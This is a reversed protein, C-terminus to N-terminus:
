GCCVLGSRRKRPPEGRIDGGLESDGRGSLGQIVAVVRVRALLVNALQSLADQIARGVEKREQLRLAADPRKLESARDPCGRRLVDGGVERVRELLARPSQPQIAHRPVLALM